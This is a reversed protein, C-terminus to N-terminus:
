FGHEALWDRGNANIRWARNEPSLSRKVVEALQKDTLYDLEREVEKPEVKFGQPVLHVTVAPVTLGFRTQNTDLTRLIATRLVERQEPSM